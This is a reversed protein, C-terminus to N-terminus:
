AGDLFRLQLETVLREDPDALDLGSLEELRRLRYRFTNAHVNMRRAAAAIDGFADLHARLTEVYSTEKAADHEVLVQLPGEHLYEERAALDGLRRLVVKARVDDLTAWRVTGDSEALVRLVQDVEWRSRPVATLGNVRGGIAALVVLRLSARVRELVPPVLTRLREHAARGDGALPVVAYVTRSIAACAAGRAVGEAHLAVVDALREVLAVADAGDVGQVQFGVVCVPEDPPLDLLEAATTPPLRGELVARVAESRRRRELDDSERHHLLHLAVLKAASRLAAEANPGLPDGVEAVWISGLVEGGARVGVVVRPRLEDTGDLRVIEDSSTIHKFVGSDRYRKVYKEAVRRGLIAQKRPEDVEESGHSYALVVSHPDEITVPAGVMDAVADALRFLDGLPVGVGAATGTGTSRLLTYLRGWSVDPPASLLAVGTTEAAHLAASSASEELAVVVGAAAGVAARELLTPVDRNRAGVALVLDSARIASVDDVACLVPEGVEVSLGRPACLVTLTGPLLAALVSELTPAAAREDGDTSSM